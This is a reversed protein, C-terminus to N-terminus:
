QSMKFFPVPLQRYNSSINEVFFKLVKKTFKQIKQLLKKGKDRAIKQPTELVPSTM